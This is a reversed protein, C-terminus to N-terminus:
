VLLDAVPTGHMVVGDGAAVVGSLLDLLEVGLQAEALTLEELALGLLTACRGRRSRSRNGRQGLSRTTLLAAAGARGTTAMGMQRRDFLYAVDGGILLLARTTAL